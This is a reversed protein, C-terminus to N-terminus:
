TDGSEQNFFVDASSNLTDAPAEHKSQWLRWTYKLTILLGSMSTGHKGMDIEALAMLVSLAPKIKKLRRPSNM